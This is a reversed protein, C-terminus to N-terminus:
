LSIEQAAVLPNEGICLLGLRTRWSQSVSLNNNKKESVSYGDWCGAEFSAGEGSWTVNKWESVNGFM